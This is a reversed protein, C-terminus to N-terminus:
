KDNAEYIYCVFNRAERLVEMARNSERLLNINAATKRLDLIDEQKKTEMLLPLRSIKMLVSNVTRSSLNLSTSGRKCPSSIIIRGTDCFRSSSAAFVGRKKQEYLLSVPTESNIRSQVM